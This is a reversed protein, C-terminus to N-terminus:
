PRNQDVTSPRRGTPRPGSLRTLAAPYAEASIPRLANWSPGAVTLRARCLAPPHSRTAGAATPIASASTPQLAPWIACVEPMSGATFPPMPWAPAIATRSTWSAYGSPPTNRRPSSAATRPTMTLEPRDSSCSSCTDLLTPVATMVPSRFSGAPLLRTSSAAPVVVEEEDDTVTVDVGVTVGVGGDPDPVGEFEPEADPDAEAEVVPDADPEAEAEPDPDADAEPDADAVGDAVLVVLGTVIPWTDMTSVSRVSSTWDPLVTSTVKTKLVPWTVTVMGTAV